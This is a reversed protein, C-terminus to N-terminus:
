NILHCRYFINFRRKYWYYEEKVAGFSRYFNAVGEIMSGEFDLIYNTNQYEKILENIIFTPINDKKALDTAVPLLYTIRNKDILWVLGALLEENKYVNWIYVSSCKINLLKQLKEYSDKHTKYNVNQNVYLDLFDEISGNKDIIYDSFERRIIRKRNKNYNQSIEDFSKDLNLVYNTRKVAYKSLFNNKTNFMYDVLVFKKPIHDIFNQVLSENTNDKSFVGLQQVWPIQYIYNLGYKKRRPLPMVAEYDNLVLADWNDAVCDLYWSYAYIRVNISEEICTDYKAIDLNKYAIYKIM